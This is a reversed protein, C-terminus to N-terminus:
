PNQLSIKRQKLSFFHTRNRQQRLYLKAPRFIFAYLSFHYLLNKLNEYKPAMLVPLPLSKANPQNFLQRTV